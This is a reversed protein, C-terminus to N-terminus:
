AASDTEVARRRSKHKTAPKRSAEALVRTVDVQLRSVTDTLCILLMPQDTNRM